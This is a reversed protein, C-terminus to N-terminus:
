YRVNTIYQLFKTDFAYVHEANIKGIALKSKTLISNTFDEGGALINLINRELWKLIIIPSQLSIKSTTKGLAVILSKGAYLSTENELQALLYEHAISLKKEGIVDAIHERIHFDNERLASILFLNVQSNETFLLLSELKYRNLDITSSKTRKFYQIVWPMVIDIYKNSEVFRVIFDIKCQNIFSQTFVANRIFEDTIYATIYATAVASNKCKMLIEAYIRITACILNYDNSNAAMIELISNYYQEIIKEEVNFDERTLAQIFLEFQSGLVNKIIEVFLGVELNGDIIINKSFIFNEFDVFPKNREIFERVEARVLLLNNSDYEHYTLHSLDAARDKLKECNASDKEILIMVNQIDKFCHVIGLEYIVNARYGTLIAIIYQSQAIETLVKNMFPQNGQIEDDRNCVINIMDLEQKIVGYLKDYKHDFPMLVFCRNRCVIIEENKFQKPYIACKDM